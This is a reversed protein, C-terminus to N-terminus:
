AFNPFLLLCCLKLFCVCFLVGLVFCGKKEKRAFSGGFFCVPIYLQLIRPAVNPYLLMSKYNFMSLIITESNM